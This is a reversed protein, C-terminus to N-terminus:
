AAAQSALKQLAEALTAELGQFRNNPEIIVTAGPVRIRTPKTKKGGTPARHKAITTVPVGRTQSEKVAAIRQEPPLTRLARAQRENEVHEGHSGLERCLQAAEILRQAHQRSMGWRRNCFTEFTDTDKRYLQRDRIEELALGVKHFQRLGLDVVSCLQELRETDDPTNTTFIGM